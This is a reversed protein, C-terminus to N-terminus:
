RALYMFFREFGKPRWGTVWVVAAETNNIFTHPTKPALEVFSGPGDNGGVM